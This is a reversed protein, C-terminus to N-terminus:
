RWPSLRKLGAKGLAQRTDKGARIKDPGNLNLYQEETLTKVARKYLPFESSSVRGDTEVGFIIGEAQWKRHKNLKYESDNFKSTPKPNVYKDATRINVRKAGSISLKPKKSEIEEPTTAVTASSLSLKSRTNTSMPKPPKPTSNVKESEIVVRPKPSDDYPISFKKINSRFQKYQEFLEKQKQKNMDEEKDGETIDKLTETWESHEVFHNPYKAALAKFAKLTMSPIARQRKFLNALPDKDFVTNNSYQMMFVKYATDIPAYVEQNIHMQNQYLGPLKLLARLYQEITTDKLFLKYSPEILAKM